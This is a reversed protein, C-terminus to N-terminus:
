LSRSVSSAERAHVAMADAFKEYNSSSLCRQLSDDLAKISADLDILSSTSLWQQWDPRLGCDGMKALVKLVIDIRFYQTPSCASAIMILLSSGGRYWERIIKVSYFEAQLVVTTYNCTLRQREGSQVLLLASMVWLMDRHVDAYLKEYHTRSIFMCVFRTISEVPKILANLLSLSKSQPRYM